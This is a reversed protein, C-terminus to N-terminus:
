ILIKNFFVILQVHSCKKKIYKWTRRWFIRSNELHHTNLNYKILRQHATTLSFKNNKRVGKITEIWKTVTVYFSMRRKKERISFILLQFKFSRPWFTMHWREHYGRRKKWVFTAHGFNSVSIDIVLHNIELFRIIDM